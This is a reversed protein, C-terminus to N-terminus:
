KRAVDFEEGNNYVTVSFEERGAMQNLRTVASRVSTLYMDRYSYRAVSGHPILLLTDTISVKKVLPFKKPEIQKPNLM